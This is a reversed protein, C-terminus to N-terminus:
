PLFNAYAFASVSRRVTAAIAEAEQLSTGWTLELGIFGSDLVELGKGSRELMVWQTGDGFEKVAFVCRTRETKSQTM